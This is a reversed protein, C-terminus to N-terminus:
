AAIHEKAMSVIQDHRPARHVHAIAPLCFATAPWAVVPNDDLQAGNPLDTTEFDIRRIEFTVKGLTTDKFRAIGYILCNRGIGGHRPLYHQCARLQLRMRPMEKIIFNLVNAWDRMHAEIDKRVAANAPQPDVSQSLSSLLLPVRHIVTETM